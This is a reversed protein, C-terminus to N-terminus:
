NRYLIKELHCKYNESDIESLKENFFSNYFNCLETRLENRINIDLVYNIVKIFLESKDKKNLNHVLSTINGVKVLSAGEENINFSMNDKDIKM